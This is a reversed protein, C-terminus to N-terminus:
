DLFLCLGDGLAPPEPLELHRLFFPDHAAIFQDEHGTTWPNHPGVGQHGFRQQQQTVFVMWPHLLDDAKHALMLPTLAAVLMAVAIPAIVARLAHVLDLGKLRAAHALEAVAAERAPTREDLPFRWPHGVDSGRLAVLVRQAHRVVDLATIPFSRNIHVDQPVYGIHHSAKETTDGLVRISGKAPKLLGLILKLVTTKGGGNPGIMAIFDKPRIDLNIDQLVARGNYAFSVDRIEVIASSM